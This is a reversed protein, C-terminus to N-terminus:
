SLLIGLRTCIEAGGKKQLPFFHMSESPASDLLRGMAAGYVHCEDVSGTAITGCGGMITAPSIDGGMAEVIWSWGATGDGDRRVGGGYSLDHAGDDTSAGVM